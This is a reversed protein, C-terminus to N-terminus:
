LKETYSCSDARTQMTKTNTAVLFLCRRGQNPIAASLRFNVGFLPPHCYPSITPDLSLSAITITITRFEQFRLHMM